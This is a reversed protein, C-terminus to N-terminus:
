SRPLGTLYAALSGSRVPEGFTRFRVPDLELDWLSWKADPLILEFTGDSRTATEARAGDDRRKAIVRVDSGLPVGGDRSADVVRGRIRTLDRRIAIDRRQARGATLVIPETRLEDDFYPDFDVCLEAHGTAPFEVDFGLRSSENPRQDQFHKGDQRLWVQAEAPEGNVTISGYIRAPRRPLRLNWTKNVDAEFDDYHSVMWGAPNWYFLLYQERPDLGTVAYRGNEGLEFGGSTAGCELDAPRDADSADRYVKGFVVTGGTFPVGDFDVVTGEVRREPALLFEYRRTASFTEGAFEYYACAFGEKSADVGFHEGEVAGDVEFSGDAASTAVEVDRDRTGIWAVIKAGAIPQRSELDAVVGRFRGAGEPTKFETEYHKAEDTEFDVVFPVANRPEISFLYAYEPNLGDVRFSGDAATRTAIQWGPSRSYLPVVGADAVPSGDRSSVVRGLLTAAPRLVLKVPPKAGIERAYGVYGPKWAHIALGRELDLEFRGRSNTTTTRLAPRAKDVSWAEDRLLSITAGAIPQGAVDVVSWERADPPSRNPEFMGAEVALAVAAAVLVVVAIWTQTSRL